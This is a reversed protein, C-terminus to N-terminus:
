QRSKLNYVWAYDAYDIYLQMTNDGNDRLRIQCKNCVMDYASYVSYKYGNSDVGNKVEEKLNYHQPESSYIHIWYKGKYHEFNVKIYPNCNSWDSWEYDGTQQDVTAIALQYASLNLQEDQASVSLGFVLCLILLIKKM